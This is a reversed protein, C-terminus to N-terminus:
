FESFVSELGQSNSFGKKREYAISRYIKEKTIEM